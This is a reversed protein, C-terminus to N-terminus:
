VDKRTARVRDILDRAAAVEADAAARADAVDKLRRQQEHALRQLCDLTAQEQARTAATIAAAHTAKMEAAERTLKAVLANLSEVQTRERKLIDAHTAATGQANSAADTRTKAHDKKEAALAADLRAIEKESRAAAEISERRLTSHAISLNEVAPLVDEEVFATQDACAIRGISKIVNGLRAIEAEIQDMTAQKVFFPM